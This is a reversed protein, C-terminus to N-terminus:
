VQERIATQLMSNQKRWLEAAVRYMGANEALDQMTRELDRNNRDHFLVNESATSPELRLRGHGRRDVGGSVERNEITVSRDGGKREDLAARLSARFGEVSVDQPRFNPTTLNAVNHALVRQRQGAFRMMLEAAPMAGSKSLSEIM